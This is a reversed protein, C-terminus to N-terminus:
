IVKQFWLLEAPSQEGDNVTEGLIFTSTSDDWGMFQNNDRTKVTNENDNGM